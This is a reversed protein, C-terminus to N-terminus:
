TTMAARVHDRTFMAIMLIPYPAYLFVLMASMTGGLMMGMGGPMKMPALEGGTRPAAHAIAEFMQKYAPGVMVLSIVVMAGLAILAALGWTVSQRCAWARYRMQGIGLV